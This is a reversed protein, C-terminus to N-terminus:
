SFLYFVFFVYLVYNHGHTIEMCFVFICILCFYLFYLIVFHDFLTVSSSFTSVIVYMGLRIFLTRDGTLGGTIVRLRMPHEVCARPFYPSCEKQLLLSVLFASGHTAFASKSHKASLLREQKQQDVVTPPSGDRSPPSRLGPFPSQFM